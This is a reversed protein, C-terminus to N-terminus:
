RKSSSHRCRRSSRSGIGNQRPFRARDTWMENLGKQIEADGGTFQGVLNRWRAALAQATPGAPHEGLAAEVDAILTTWEATVRAQLEPSWLPWRQDVAESAQPSYYQKTSDSRSSAHSSTHRFAM